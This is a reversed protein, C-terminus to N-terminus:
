RKREIPEPLVPAIVTTTRSAAPLWALVGVLIGGMGVLVGAPGGLSFADLLAAIPVGVRLIWMGATAGRGYLASGVIAVTVVFWELWGAGATAVALGVYLPAVAAVSALAVVVPGPADALRHHRTWLRLWPGALGVIAVSGVVYTAWTFPSTGVSALGMAVVVGAGLGWRGWPARALLLGVLCTVGVLVLGIAIMASSSSTIPSPDVVLAAAGCAIALVSVTGIFLHPGRV